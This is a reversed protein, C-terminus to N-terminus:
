RAGRRNVHGHIAKAIGDLYKSPISDVRIEVQATGATDIELSGLRFLREVFGRNIHVNTIREYPVYTTKKNFLGMHLTVGEEDVEIYQIKARIFAAIVSLVAIGWVAALVLELPFSIWNNLRLLIFSFVLAALISRTYDM